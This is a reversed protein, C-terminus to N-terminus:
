RSRAPTPVWAQAGPDQQGAGVKWSVPRASRPPLPCVRGSLVWAATGVREGAQAPRCGCSTGARLWIDSLRRERLARTFDSLRRSLCFPSSVGSPGGGPCSAPRWGRRSGKRRSEPGPDPFSYNWRSALWTWLVLQERRPSPGPSPARPLCAQSPCAPGSWTTRFRSGPAKRAPGESQGGRPLSGLDGDVGQGGPRSM